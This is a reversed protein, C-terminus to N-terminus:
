EGPQSGTEEEQIRHVKGDPGRRGNKGFQNRNILKRKGTEMEVLVENLTQHLFKDGLAQWLLALSEISYGRYGQEYQEVSKPNMGILKSLARQSLGARVRHTALISSVGKSMRGSKHSSHQNLARYSARGVIDLLKKEDLIVTKQNPM